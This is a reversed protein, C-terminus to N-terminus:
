KDEKTKPLWVNGIVDKEEMTKIASIAYDCRNDIDKKKSPNINARVLYTRDFKGDDVMKKLDEDTVAEKKYTAEINKLCIDAQIDKLEKKVKKYEANLKCYNHVLVACMVVCYILCIAIIAMLFVFTFKTM